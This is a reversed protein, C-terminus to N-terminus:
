SRGEDDTALLFIKNIEETTLIEEALNWIKQLIELQGWSTVEHWATMGEDNRALLLNKVEDATIKEKTLQM